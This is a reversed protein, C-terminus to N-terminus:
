RGPSDPVPAHYLREAQILSEVAPPVLSAISEGAEVRRRIQTSSLDTEDFPLLQYAGVLENPVPHDGGPRPLVLLGANELIARPEKWNPLDILSDFGIVLFLRSESYQARLERLTDVTYSPGQRELEIDSAEMRAESALAARTMALRSQPTAWPGSHKHPPRASVVFLLRDLQASDLVARGIALHANHLPDFTGGFVGIRKPSDM